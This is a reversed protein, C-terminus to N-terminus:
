CLSQSHGLEKLYEFNHVLNEERGHMGCQWDMKGNNRSLGHVECARCM